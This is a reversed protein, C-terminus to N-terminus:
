FRFYRRRGNHSAPNRGRFGYSRRRANRRGYRGHCANRGMANGTDEETLSLAKGPMYAAVTNRFFVPATEATYGNISKGEFYEEPIYINMTEYTTDVPNAVYVINEYARVNLDKGDVTFSVATYNQPDFKLASSVAPQQLTNKKVVSSAFASSAGLSFVMSASLVAAIMKGQLNMKERRDYNNKQKM